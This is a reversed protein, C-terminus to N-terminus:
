ISERYTPQAIQPADTLAPGQWSTGVLVNNNDSNCIPFMSQKTRKLEALFNDLKDGQPVELTLSDAASTLRVVVCGAFDFWCV